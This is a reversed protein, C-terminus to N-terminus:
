APAGNDMGYRLMSSRKAIPCPSHTLIVNSSNSVSAGAAASDLGSGRPPGPLVTTGKMDFDDEIRRMSSCTEILTPSVRSTGPNAGFGVMFVLHTLKVQAKERRLEPGARVSCTPNGKKLPLVDAPSPHPSTSSKLTEISPLCAPGILSCRRGM